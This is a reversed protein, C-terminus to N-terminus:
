AAARRHFVMLNVAFWMAVPRDRNAAEWRDSLAQDFDFGQEDLLKIWYSKPQCNIHNQGPQGPNAATLVIHQRAARTLLQVYNRAASAPLHEAVEVSYVIDAQWPLEKANTLDISVVELGKELCRKHAEAALEVGYAKVGLKAFAEVYEGLGCGVDIVDRPHFEEVIDSAILPASQTAWRGDECSDYYAESYFLNHLSSDSEFYRERLGTLLSNRRIRNRLGSPLRRFSQVCLTKIKSKASM